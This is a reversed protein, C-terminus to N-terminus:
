VCRSHGEIRLDLSAKSCHQGNTEATALAVL